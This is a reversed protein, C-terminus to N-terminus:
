NLIQNKSNSGKKIRLNKAKDKNKRLQKKMKELAKDMSLYLDNTEDHSHFSLWRKKVTFEAFHRYKEVSLSVHIDTDDDLDTITKNLKRNLHGRIGDTIHFKRGTVAIKM